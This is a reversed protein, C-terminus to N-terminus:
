RGQVARSLMAIGGLVVMAAFAMLFAWAVLVVAVVVIFLAGTGLSSVAAPLNIKAAMVVSVIGAAVISAAILCLDLMGITSWFQQIAWVAGQSDTQNFFEAVGLLPHVLLLGVLVYGGAFVGALV